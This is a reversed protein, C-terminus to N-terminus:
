YKDFPISVIMIIKDNMIKDMVVGDDNRKLDRWYTMKRSLMGIGCRTASTAFNSGIGESLSIRQFKRGGSWSWETDTAPSTSLLLQENM